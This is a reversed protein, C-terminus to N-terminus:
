GRPIEFRPVRLKKKDGGGGVGSGVRKVVTYMHWSQTAKLRYRSNTASRCSSLVAQWCFFFGDDDVPRLLDGEARAFSDPRPIPNPAPPPTPPPPPPPPALSPLAPLPFTTVLLAEASFISFIREVKRKGLLSAIPLDTARLSSLLFARFAKKVASTLPQPKAIPALPPLELPLLHTGRYPYCGLLSRPCMSRYPHVKKNKALNRAHPARYRM